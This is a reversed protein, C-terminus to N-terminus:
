SARKFSSLADSMISTACMYCLLTNHVGGRFSTRSHQMCCPRGCICRGRSFNAQGIGSCLACLTRPFQLIPSIGQRLTFYVNQLSNGLPEIFLILSDLSNKYADFLAPSSFPCADCLNEDIFVALGKENYGVQFSMGGLKNGGKLKEESVASRADLSVDDNEAIRIGQSDGCIWRPYRRKMISAIQLNPCSVLIQCSLFSNTRSDLIGIRLSHFALANRKEWFTHVTALCHPVICFHLSAVRTGFEKRLGNTWHLSCGLQTIAAGALQDRSIILMRAERFLTRFTDWGNVSIAMGSVDISTDRWASSSRVRARFARSIRSYCVWDQIVLAFQLIMCWVTDSLYIFPM